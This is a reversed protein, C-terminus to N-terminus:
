EEPSLTGDELVRVLPLDRKFKRQNDLWLYGTAGALTLPMDSSILPLWTALRYADFGLGLLDAQSSQRTAFADILAAHVPTPEAFLPMETLQFGALETMADGRTAQSTTYVPLESAFHFRLAPILARSEVQNTFAVVADLDKRARPLFEVQEGIINSIEDRRGHSAAVQM